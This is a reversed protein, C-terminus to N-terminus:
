GTRASARASPRAATTAATLFMPHVGSSGRLRRSRRPPLRRRLRLGCRPAAKQGGLPLHRSQAQRVPPHVARRRGPLDAGPTRPVPRPLRRDRAPLRAARVTGSRPLSTFIHGDAHAALQGAIQAELTKIQTNLSALVAALARTVQASAAGAEGTAGRPASRLRQYLEAPDTRGSYSAAKLWTALRKQSLWDARDQRDFRALFALSIASDLRCFLGVMGPFASLLHARLQNTVAVRHRVLDTRARCAQRLTVTAPSDPILPRLRARDTRLVDALVFADFRDDENGASGYRSRLNKVQRPTIVVVTVGAELLADVVPGDGREIAVECARAKALRQVLTRLGEATHEVSFRSVVQGFADVVCVAHDSSAWDIGATVGGHPTGPWSVPAYKM